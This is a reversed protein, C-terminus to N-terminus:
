SLRSRKHLHDPLLYTLLATMTLGIRNIRNELSASAHKIRATYLREKRESVISSRIIEVESSVGTEICLQLGIAAITKKRSGIIEKYATRAHSPWM